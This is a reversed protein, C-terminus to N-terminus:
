SFCSKSLSSVKINTDRPPSFRSSEVSLRPTYIHSFRVFVSSLTLVLCQHLASGRMGCFKEFPCGSHSTFTPLLVQSQVLCLFWETLFPACNRTSSSLSSSFMFVYINKSWLFTLCPLHKSLICLTSLRCQLRWRPDATPVVAKTWLLDRTFGLLLFSIFPARSWSHHWHYLIQRGICSFSSVGTRDSPQLPARSYSIAVWQLIRVQFIEHVSSGPLSSDM